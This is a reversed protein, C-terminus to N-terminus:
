LIRVGVNLIEVAVISRGWRWAVVVVTDTAAMLVYVVSM